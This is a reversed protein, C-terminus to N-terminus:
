IHEDEIVVDIKKITSLTKIMIAIGIAATGLGIADLSSRHLELIQSLLIWGGGFGTLFIGFISLSYLNKLKM